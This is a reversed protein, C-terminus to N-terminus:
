HLVFRFTITREVYQPKGNLLYPKVRSKLAANESAEKLLAPGDLACAKIVKGDLGILVRM